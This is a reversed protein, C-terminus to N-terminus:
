LSIVVTGHYIVVGEYCCYFGLVFGNTDNKRNFLTQVWKEQSSQGTLQSKLTRTRLVLGDRKTYRLSTCKYLGRWSPCSSSSSPGHQTYFLMFNKTLDRSPSTKTNPSSKLEQVASWFSCGLRATPSRAQLPLFGVKVSSPGLLLIYDIIPLKKSTHYHRTCAHLTFENAITPMSNALQMKSPAFTSGKLLSPGNTVLFPEFLNFGDGKQGVTITPTFEMQEAYEPIREQTQPWGLVM